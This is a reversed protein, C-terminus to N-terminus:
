VIICMRVQLTNEWLEVPKHHKEAISISFHRSVIPLFEFCALFSLGNILSAKPGDFYDEEWCVTLLRVGCDFTLQQEKNKGRIVMFEVGESVLLRFCLKVQQYTRKKYIKLPFLKLKQRSRSYHPKRCEVLDLLISKRQASFNSKKWCLSSFLYCLSQILIWLLFLATRPTNWFALFPL